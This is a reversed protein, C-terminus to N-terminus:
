TKSFNFKLTRLKEDEAELMSYFIIKEDDPFDNILEPYERLVKLVDDQICKLFIDECGMIKSTNLYNIKLTTWNEM